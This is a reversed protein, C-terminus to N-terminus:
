AGPNHGPGTTDLVSLPLGNQGQAFTQAFTLPTLTSGGMGLDVAHRFGAQRIESAFSQLSDIHEEMKESVQLWGLANRITKQSEPDSKWLSADKRWLRASVQNRELDEAKVKFDQELNGLRFTMRDVPDRLAQVRKEELTKMLAEFAQIFKKVGEDELTQTVEDLAIGLDVLRKLAQEAEPEGETLRPAPRGHDRYAELTELPLTNITDQGILAEIYKINSYAPNKTSTSAWLLRQPRAGQGALKRFRESNILNQYIRYAMKASAISIGGHLEKAVGSKPGGAAIMKELMPDVLTDIRSLFFSAVSAIRNLSKGKGALDELGALFAEAVERYRPLGFLLTVNVNIGERILARIAPIGEPTGPVKIMVNSRSVAAWLRRAEDITGATDHALLPSVELSVFGDRGDLQEYVPRFLDATRQIDEVVLDLFIESIAKGERAMTEIRDDYDHSGAIAKEFISPNSTVGRLGDERILKELEGSALMGRRIFDMWISQGLAQLGLLPNEKM